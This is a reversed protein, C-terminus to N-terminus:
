RAEMESVRDPYPVPEGTAKVVPMPADVERLYSGLRDALEEAKDPREEVLNNTEGIDEELHFLEFTTRDHYYILKWEGDRIVSCAGLGPGTPPPSELPGWINPFHWYLAREQFTESTEGGTLLPRLDLGDSDTPGAPIGAAELITPFWDHIIVPTEVTEGESTVGPWRVILPVRIGGEHHSGKGSSLPANHTHPEGMTRYDHSLGGNDSMFVVLTEEAVELEDLLDLLDGISKDMGAILSAYASEFEDLGADRYPQMFREDPEIPRHPAYHSFYCFFPEDREVSARIAEKAERTLVETLHIDQGRYEDVDWARWPSSLGGSKSAFDHLGSYSGPGGADRGGVRVDFGFVKPDGGETGRAGLHGKGFIMTRYGIENLYEPLTKSSYAHDRAPDPQLGNWNWNAPGLRPHELDSTSEEGSRYTWQTVGTRATDRGTLFSVRTPSCVSCSYADTFKVGEAALRELAPTRYRENMPAPEETFPVSTSTWGLDDALIFLVNPRDAAALSTAILSGALFLLPRLRTLLSRFM